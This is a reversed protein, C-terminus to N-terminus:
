STVKRTELELLDLENRTHNHDEGPGGAGSQTDPDAGPDTLDQTDAAARARQHADPDATRLQEYYHDSGRLNATAFPSAGISVPGFELCRVETITVEPIGKPNHASVGPDQNIQEAIIRMRFSAGYEGAALGDLFMRPLGDFLRVEYFAGVNDERLTDISGLSMRSLTSSHGHEFWCRQVDEAFTTEFAGPAIREMFNGEWYSDIEYWRNFVSFHGTLIGDLPVENGSQDALREPDVTPNRLAPADAYRVIDFGSRDRLRNSM